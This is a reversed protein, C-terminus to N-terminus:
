VDAFKASVLVLTEFFPLARSAVVEAAMGVARFKEKTEEVGALTSQLLLIHGTRELHEPVHLIFRDIVERGGEGGAWSRGLWTAEEGRESPLYPSNFLILDFKANERLCSFLDTQLFAMKGDVRNRKANRKACHIAHPNVDIVLVESAQKAATIGLIGSGTGMDLVHAGANVHLNDAFLFTDESPEYVEDCVEFSSDGFFARKSSSHM